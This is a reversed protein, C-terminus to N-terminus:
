PGVEARAVASRGRAGGIVEYLRWKGAGREVPPVAAVLRAVSSPPASTGGRVLVYDWNLLDPSSFWLEQDLRPLERGPRFHIANYRTDAFAGGTYGGTRATVLGPCNHLLSWRHIVGEDIAICDVRAGDPILAILREMPRTERREFAEMSTQMLWAFGLCAAISAVIGIAALTSRRPLRPMMVAAFIWPTVFRQNVSLEGLFAPLFYYACGLAVVMLVVTHERAERYTAKAFAQVRTWPGGERSGRSPTQEAGDSTSRPEASGSPAISIGLFLLWIGGLLWLTATDRQSVVVNLSEKVFWDVQQEPSFFYTQGLMEILSNGPLASESLKQQFWMRWVLFSPVLAALHWIHRWHTLSIALTGVCLAIVYVYGMGHMFLGVFAILGLALAYPWRGTLGARRAAAAGFFMLPLVGLFNILGLTLTSGWMFPLALFVLWRSREFVRLAVLLSLVTAVLCLTIYLRLSATTDFLPDCLAVFLAPLLNSITDTPAYFERYVANESLHVWADTLIVHGGFDQLPPIAGIWIPGILAVTCVVLALIYVGTLWPVNKRVTRALQVAPSEAM